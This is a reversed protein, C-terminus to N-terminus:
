EVECGDERVTLSVSYDNALGFRYEDDNGLACSFVSLGEGVNVEFKHNVRYDDIFVPDYFKISDETHDSFVVFHSADNLYGPEITDIAVITACLERDSDEFCNLYNVRSSDFNNEQNVFRVFDIDRIDAAEEYPLRTWVSALIENERMFWRSHNIKPILYSGVNVTQDTNVKLRMINGDFRPDSISGRVAHGTFGEDNEEILFVNYFGNNNQYIADSVLWEDSENSYVALYLFSRLEEYNDFSGDGYFLQVFVKCNSLPNSRRWFSLTESGRYRIRYDVGLYEDSELNKENIRIQSDKKLEKENPLGDIPCNRGDALGEDFNNVTTSTQAVNSDETELIRSYNYTSFGISFLSTILILTLGILILKSNIIKM